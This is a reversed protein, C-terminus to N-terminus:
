RIISISGTYLNGDPDNLEIRYFYTGAPLNEGNFTGDWPTEYGISEFVVSGWRNFILVKCEPYLDHLFDITFVDNLGDFNGPTIVTPLIPQFGECISGSILITDSLDGCVPHSLLYVIKTNGIGYHHTNTSSASPQDIVVEGVLSYWSATQNEIPATGTLILQNDELCLLTDGSQIQPAMTAFVRVTDSSNPCSGNSITWVFDQWGNVFGSAYAISNHIDNITSGSLSTWTGVGYLPTNAMLTVIENGCAIVTDIANAPLDELYRIIVLTDSLSGCSVTSVSWIYENTGIGINNLGTTYAAPNNFTGAGSITTWGGTGSSPDSASVIYSSIGCLRVTDEAILPIAPYELIEITFSCSGMNGSVDTVEFSQTTIGIPFVSGSSYGTGDTQILSAVSCNDNFLPDLYIVVPDCSVSNSPCTITPNENESVLLNFSCQASNGAVDVVNITIVTTGPNVISGVAPTQIVTYDPCNDSVVAMAGYDPLLYDCSNGNDIPAPSPCSILPPTIDDPLVSIICTTTNGSQDNVTILVDSQGSAPTNIAPTQVIGFFGTQTCNDTIFIQPSLDPILYDCPNNMSVTHTIPCSITPVQTDYGTILINDIAAPDGYLNLDNYVFRVGIDFLTYDLSTPLNIAQTNWGGSQEPLSSLVSWTLAGDTSYVIEAYDEASAGGTKFDFTLQINEACTADVPAYRIAQKIGSPSNVYAYQIDGTPGCGATSGGPTIYLAFTGPFSPGNGACTNTIWYNPSLDGAPNGLELGSEFDESFLNIQGYGSLPIIISLFAVFRLM